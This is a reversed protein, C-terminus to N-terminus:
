HLEFEGPSQGNFTRCLEGPGGARLTTADFRCLAARDLGPAPSPQPFPHANSGFWFESAQISWRGHCVSIPAEAGHKRLRSATTEDTHCPTEVGGGHTGPRRSAGRVAHSDAAYTQRLEGHGPLPNAAAVEM